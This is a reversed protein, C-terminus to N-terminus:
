KKNNRATCFKCNGKHTGVYDGGYTRFKLYECSDIIVINSNESINKNITKDDLCSAVVISLIIILISKKM